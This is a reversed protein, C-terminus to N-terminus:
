SVGDPLYVGDGAIFLQRVDSLWVAAGEDIAGACGVISKWIVRKQISLVAAAV